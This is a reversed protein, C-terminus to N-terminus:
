RWTRGSTRSQNRLRQIRSRTNDNDPSPRVQPPETQPAPLVDSGNSEPTQMQLGPEPLTEFDDDASGFGSDHPQLNSDAGPGGFPGPDSYVSGVRGWSPHSRQVAGGFSPYDYDYPGCCMSCGTYVLALAGALAATCRGIRTLTKKAMQKHGIM